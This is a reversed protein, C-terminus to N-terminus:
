RLCPPTPVLFPGRVNVALHPRLQRGDSSGTPLAVEIGANNVLVDIGGLIDEAAAVAAEVSQQDTVDCNAVGRRRDGRPAVAAADDIDSIVVRAGERIALEAIGRGIGAASGTILLRKDALEPM